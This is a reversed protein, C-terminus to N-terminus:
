PITLEQGVYIKNPDKLIATNAEYIAKYKGGDGYQRKAIGWLTDGKVVTYRKVTPASDANRTKEVTLTPEGTATPPALVLKTTFDPFQKLSVAVTVDFGANADEKLEYDELSVRMDTDFLPEGTPSTRTLLFIVSRRETIIAKLKDTYWDPTQFGQPYESFSYAGLMPLLLNLKIETLGPAKLFSMEGENVLTLTKNQGKIKVSLKDPPIPYKVGDIFCSYSM